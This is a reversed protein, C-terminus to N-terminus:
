IFYQPSKAVCEAITPKPSNLLVEVVEYFEGRHGFDNLQYSLGINDSLENIGSVFKIDNINIIDGNIEKVQGVYISMQIEGKVRVETYYRYVFVDNVRLAKIKVDCAQIDVQAKFEAITMEDRIDETNLM